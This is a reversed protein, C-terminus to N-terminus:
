FNVEPIHFISRVALGWLLILCLSLTLSTFVSTASYISSLELTFFKSKNKILFTIETPCGLAPSREVAVFSM